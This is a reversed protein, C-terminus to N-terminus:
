EFATDISFKKSGENILAIPCNLKETTSEKYKQVFHIVLRKEQKISAKGYRIYIM